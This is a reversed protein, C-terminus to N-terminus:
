PADCHPLIAAATLLVAPPVANLPALPRLANGSAIGRTYSVKATSFGGSGLVTELKEFGQQPQKGPM